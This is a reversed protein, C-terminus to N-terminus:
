PQIPTELTEELGACPKETGEDHRNKMAPSAFGFVCVLAAAVHSAYRIGQVNQRGFGPISCGQASLPRQATSADKTARKFDHSTALGGIGPLGIGTKEMRTAFLVLERNSM